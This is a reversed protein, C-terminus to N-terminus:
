NGQIPHLAAELGFLFRLGDAPPLARARRTAAEALLDQLWAAPLRGM